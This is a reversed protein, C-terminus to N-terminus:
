CKEFFMLLQLVKKTKWLFLWNMNLINAACLLSERGKKYKSVLQMDALDAGWIDDKFSLYVKQKKFNRINLKCLQESLQQNSM